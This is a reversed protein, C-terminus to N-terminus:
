KNRGDSFHSALSPMLWNLSAIASAQKGQFKSGKEKLDLKLGNVSVWFFRNKIAAIFGSEQRGQGGFGFGNMFSM